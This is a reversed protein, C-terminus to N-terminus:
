KFYDKFIKDFGYLTAMVLLLYSAFNYAPIPPYYLAFSICSSLIAVIWIFQKTYLLFMCVIFGIIINIYSLFLSDVIYGISFVQFINFFTNRILTLPDNFLIELYREKLVTLYLNRQYKYVFM